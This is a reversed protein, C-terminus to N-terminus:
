NSGNDGLYFNDITTKLEIGNSFQFPIVHGGLQFVIFYTSANAKMTSFIRLAKLKTKTIQNSSGFTERTLEQNDIYYKCNKQTSYIKLTDKTLRVSDSLYLEHWLNSRVILFKNLQQNIESSVFLQNQFKNTISNVIGIVLSMISISVLVEYITFSPINKM